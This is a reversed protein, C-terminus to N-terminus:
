RRPRSRLSKRSTSRTCWATLAGPCDGPGPTWAQPSSSRRRSGHAGATIFFDDFWKTRSAAYNSIARIREVMHSPPLQWGRAVAADVFRQAYADTFLPCSATAEQARAFAIGLATAGVSETIDWSDDDTRAM